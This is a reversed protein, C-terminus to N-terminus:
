MTYNYLNVVEGRVSIPIVKGSQYGGCVINRTGNKGQTVCIIRTIEINIYVKDNIWDVNNNSGSSHNFSQM